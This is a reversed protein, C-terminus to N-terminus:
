TKDLILTPSLNEQTIPALPDKAEQNNKNNENGSFVRMIMRVSQANGVPATYDEGAFPTMDVDVVREGAVTLVAAIAADVHLQAPAIDEPDELTV